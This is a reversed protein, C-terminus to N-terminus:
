VLNHQIAYRTLDDNDKLEMKQLIRTRHTDVTKIGVMLEKAIRHPTMGAVMMRMVQFERYSLHKHPQGGAEPCISKALSESVSACVYRNGMAIELMAEVLEQSPSGKTLYGAAGSKLARVVYQEESHLSLVLVPLKPKLSKIESLVDLGSGGPMSIDLVLLDYEQGRIKDIVQEGSTAEDAVTLNATKDILEKVEELYPLNDDAVLVRIRDPM